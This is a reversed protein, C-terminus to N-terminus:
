IGGTFRIPGGPLVGQGEETTREFKEALAAAADNPEIDGPEIHVLHPAFPELSHAPGGVLKTVTKRETDDDGKSIPIGDMTFTIEGVAWKMPLGDMTMRKGHIIWAGRPVFEGSRPTKNVQQATVWYASAAGFQRWARSSCVAFQGAAELDADSPADLGDPTRVVISPAGHIAAHVYRDGDRLYKKVVADNQSANRGGVLLAGDPGVCYRYSEFWFHKSQAEKRKPAAGFGELGKGELDRLERLAKDLAVQAGEQRSGEKKGKNYLIDANEQVNLRVDVPVDHSGGELDTLKLTATADTRLEALLAATADGAEAAGKLKGGIARWEHGKDHAGRVVDLLQTVEQFRLYLVDAQEKRIAEDLAFQTMSDQMMKIRRDLKGKVEDFRKQRPDDSQDDDDSTGVFFADLADRFTPSEEAAYKPAQRSAMPFPSTDVREDGEHIIVPALDNRAIQDGLSAVEQHLTQWQEDTVDAVPTNKKIDARVCLEEAWQPGFGLDMAVFRIVDKVGTKGKAAFEEATLPFPSNPGPPPAYIEGKRLKRAGHDVGRMPLHITGDGNLLLFNGDGFLEFVISRPGDGREVDIKLLRDFGIQEVKTIRCNGYDRRLIQAVMSPKDPNDPPRRTITLFRGVEFLLDM